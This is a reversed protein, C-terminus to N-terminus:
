QVYLVSGGIWSPVSPGAKSQNVPLSKDTVSGSTLLDIVPATDARRDGPLVAALNRRGGKLTNNFGYYANAVLATYNVTEAIAPVGGAHLVRAEGANYAAVILFINGGFLGRLDKLYTIGGRINQVADCIDAVDYRAATAPMLQMPGRAGTPSNVHRGLGSEQDSIAIALRTDVGQREGEEQILKEIVEPAVASDVCSGVNPVADNDASAASTATIALAIFALPLLLRNM